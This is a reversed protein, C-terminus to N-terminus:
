TNWTQPLPKQLVPLSEERMVRGNQTMHIVKLPEIRASRNADVVDDRGGPADTGRLSPAAALNEALGGRVQMNGYVDGPREGRASFYAGNERASHKGMLYQDVDRMGADKGHKLAYYVGDLGAQFSSTPDRGIGVATDSFRQAHEQMLGRAQGNDGIANERLGSEQILNAVIGAAAEASYGKAQFYALAQKTRSALETGALPAQTGKGGYSWGRIIFDSGMGGFRGGGIRPGFYAINSIGQGTKANFGDPAIATSGGQAAPDSRNLGPTGDELFKRFVEIGAHVTDTLKAMGGTMTTLAPVLEAGMKTMANKWAADSETVANGLNKTMGAEAFTRTLAERLGEGSADTLRKRQDDSLDKRNALTRDRIMGLRQTSAGAVESIDALGTPNVDEMKIGYRSLSRQTQGLEGPKYKDLAEAQRMNIGFHRSIAMLRRDAPQGKYEKDIEEREADFVTTDDGGRESMKAFMGGSLIYQQKFPDTVGHSALARYSLVQSAMGAAGGGTLSSNITGILAEANQGRFGAMGTANLGAYMSAFAASQNGTVLTRSAGESWKLLANMVEEQRGQLNGTNVVDGIAQALDNASLGAKDGRAFGEVASMQDIGYGRAMGGAFTAIDGASNDFNGAIRAYRQVMAQGEAFSVGMTESAKRVSNRLTEFDASSDRLTRLLRDDGVAEHKASGVASGIMEKVGGLGALTLAFGLPGRLMGM